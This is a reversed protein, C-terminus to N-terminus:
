EAEESPVLRPRYLVIFVFMMGAAYLYIFLGCLYALFGPRWLWGGANALQLALNLVSPIMLLSFVSTDFYVHARIAPFVAFYGVMTGLIWAGIMTASSLRWLRDPDDVLQSLAIPVFALALATFATLFLNVFRRRDVEHLGGRQLFAAVVGSFGAIGVTIEAITLLEERHEM